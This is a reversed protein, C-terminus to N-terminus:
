IMNVRLKKGVKRIEPTQGKQAFSRGQNSQNQVGTEDGWLITAGERQAHERITTYEENQWKEVAQPGRQYAREVPRQPTMGWRALYDSLTRLALTIGHKSRILERIAVREWLVFPMKLQDPANDTIIKKIQACQHPKLAMQELPRRGRRGLRLAEYGGL